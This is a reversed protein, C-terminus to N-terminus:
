PQVADVEILQMSGIRSDRELRRNPRKRFQLLLALNTQDSEGIDRALVYFARPFDHRDHRNLIAVTKGVAFPLANYLVAILVSDRENGPERESCSLQWAFCQISHCFRVPCSGM